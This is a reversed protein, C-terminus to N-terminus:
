ENYYYKLNTYDFENEVKVCDINREILMNILKSSDEYVCPNKYKTIIDLKSKPDSCSLGIFEVEGVLQKIKPLVPVLM